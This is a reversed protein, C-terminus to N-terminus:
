VVSKRDAAEVVTPFIFPNPVTPVAAPLTPEPKAAKVEILPLAPVVPATFGINPIPDAVPAILPIAAPAPTIVVPPLTLEVLKPAAVEVPPPLIPKSKTETSGKPLSQGAPESRNISHGVTRCAPEALAALGCVSIGFIGALLKWRTLNM